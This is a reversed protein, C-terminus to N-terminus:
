TRLPSLFISTRKSPLPPVGAGQAETTLLFRNYVRVDAVDAHCQWTNKGRVSTMAKDFWAVGRLHRKRGDQLRGDIVMSALGPGGDLIVALHHRDVGTKLGNVDGKLTQSKKGDGFKLLVNQDKGITIAIGAGKNTRGDLLVTGAPGAPFNLLLSTGAGTSLNPLEPAPITAGPQAYEAM